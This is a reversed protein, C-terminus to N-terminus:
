DKLLLDLDIEPLEPILGKIKKMEPHDNYLELDLKRGQIALYEERLKLHIEEIEKQIQEIIYNTIRM